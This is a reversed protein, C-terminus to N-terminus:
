SATKGTYYPIFDKLPINETGKGAVSVINPEYKYTTGPVWQVIVVPSFYVNGVATQPGFMSNITCQSLTDRLTNKDLTGAQTLVQQILYDGALTYGMDEPAQTNNDKEWQAVLEDASMGLFDDGFGFQPTWFCENCAYVGATDNGCIQNIADITWDYHAALGGTALMPYYNLQACQKLLTAYTSTVMSCYLVSVDQQKFQNIMATYDNTDQPYRGPDVLDYGKATDGILGALTTGNVGNDLLLGVKKNFDLRDWLHVSANIMDVTDFCLGVSWTYDTGPELGAKWAQAPSDPCICPMQYREAVAAVPSTTAPTWAGVLLDVKDNLVLQTAVDTAVAPDSQSDRYIIEVQRKQGDITIGGNIDNIQHLYLDNGWHTSNTCDSNDGTFPAVYGIKITPAGSNDAPATAQSGDSPTSTDSAPASTGCGTFCFLFMIAAFLIAAFKGWKKM